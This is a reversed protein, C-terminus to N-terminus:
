KVILKKTLQKNKSQYKLIYLGSPIHNLNLQIQKNEMTYLNSYVLSGSISYIEIKYDSKTELNIQLLDNVPNNYEFHEYFDNEPVSSLANDVEFKLIVPLHDSMNYLADVLDGPISTNSPSILSENFRNGDQGLAMYSDPIYHMINTPNLLNESSLIFDFRDDMGGYSFCGTNSSHTSQTHVSRYNYNNNWAGIEDIPDKLQIETTSYNMFTQFATEDDRYINMDGMIIYNERINSENIYDMIKQAAVARANADDSGSGAKLHMVFCYLFSTDSKTVIETDSYYLKYVNTIRPSTSIEKQWVFTLKDHNYFLMNVLYDGKLLARSYKEIGDVNLAKNLIEDADYSQADLENVTFIDPQVHSIITKLYNTKSTLNNNSSTCFDTYKGYYMLNYQMVTLTDKALINPISLALLIIFLSFKM